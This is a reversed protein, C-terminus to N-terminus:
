SGNNHLSQQIQERLTRAQGLNPDLSLAQDLSRLAEDTRGLQHLVVGRNLHIQANGPEVDIFTRFLDLTEEYRQQEFYLSILNRLADPNRPNIALVHQYQEEATKPRGQAEATRALFFHAVSVQSPDSLLPVAEALRDAAEDYRQMHFLTTGMGAYALGFRPDLEIVTGYWELAEEDREQRRLSEALNQVSNPAMSVLELARRHQIEAEDLRGLKRAALSLQAHLRAHLRRALPLSPPLAVIPELSEIVEAYRQMRILLGGRTVHASIDESNLEVVSKYFELVSDYLMLAEEYREQRELAIALNMLIKPHRPAIKQGRRLYQEAEDFRRLEILAHGVNIYADVSDPRQEVATLAAALAEEEQGRASLAASLNLHVDHAVPNLAVIHKYFTVDNRYIGAQQWTLTSLVVLVAGAVVFGSTRWAGSLKDAGYVASGVLVAILGLGALYQYRDAVFAYKMYTSDVISLVPSLTVAFFVVGALPGRGIRQRFSWLLAAVALAAAVYAWGLPAMPDIDWRPYIVALGAPWLLKGVYFWLAHAAILFRDVASYDFSIPERRQFFSMDALGIGLGVLFFPLLRLVDTATVRGQQWWHWILLGAPLTVAMSKSLLGAVFLALALVYRKADPADVFRLYTLAASLYFLTSLLDKRAIVWAVAEVHVPHVAFVAAILWAGPVVLRRLLRWVLWTNAFHLLLNVLHYGLPAFGWLKHELWFTSYLLPWFHGERVNGGSYTTETDFWFQWLGSWEQVAKASTWIRDDWVFGAQLAPFYSVTVLLGLGLVAWVDRPMFGSGQLSAQREGNPADPRAQKRERLELTQQDRRLRRTQKGSTVNPRM